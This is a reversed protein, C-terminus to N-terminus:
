RMAVVVVIRGCSSFWRLESSYALKDHSTLHTRKSLPAVIHMGKTNRTNRTNSTHRRSWIPTIGVSRSSIGKSKEGLLTLTPLTGIMGHQATGVLMTSSTTAFVVFMHAWLERASGALTMMRFTGM